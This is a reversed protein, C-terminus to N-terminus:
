FSVRVTLGVVRPEGYQYYTENIWGKRPDNGFYLGHVAYEADGLNRGWFQLETRQLRYRVSANVLTSGSLMGDHYYGFRSADRGEVELRASLRGSPRWDAGVHYQWSPAKAQDIGNRVVLQDRDLDFTTIRDVRTALTGVSAFLDWHMGPDYTLEIESGWNTGDANDLYGIWLFNVGDWIWSELQADRRDMYFLAARLALRQDLYRGKLGVEASTLTEEDFRVRNTMFAQFMPQMFPLNASAETNVGGAKSGRAIKAYVLSAAGVDFSLALEGSRLDDSSSSAGALSDGYRDEFREYRLGATVTLRERPRAEVQGYIARRDAAYASFFDGYYIRHLDEDRNQLYAGLVWRLGTFRRSDRLLRLDATTENRERLYRDTNSYFDLVPDCLTGDCIGVYTWDEDFGYDLASDLGTAVADITTSDNLIWRGRAALGTSRQADRGPEDSLTHRDNDLSFADYGNDSDFYLATLGYQARDGPHIALTFRASTEDFGNTDDRDLFDNHMYGDGSHQQVAFRAGVADTLPGGVAAAATWTSYSELGAEIYGDLTDSPGRGTVNILGALASTGFRTGQPGRLIEVQETDFLMAANATGGLDISDVSIGVAPYHKPDVFQELDGVGRIQVFRARSAGGSYDVNPSVALVSELHTAARDRITESDIVTVSAPSTLLPSERFGATVVIEELADQASAAMALLLAAPAVVTLACVPLRM